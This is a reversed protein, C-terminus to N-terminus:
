PQHDESVAPLEASDSPLRQKPTQLNRALPLSINRSRPRQISARRFQQAPRRGVSPNAPPKTLLTVVGSRALEAINSFWL